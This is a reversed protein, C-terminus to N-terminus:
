GKPRAPWNVAGFVAAALGALYIPAHQLEATGIPARPANSTCLLCYAAASTGAAIFLICVPLTLSRPLTQWRLVMGLFVLGLALALGGTAGFLLVLPLSEWNDETTESIFLLTTILFAGLVWGAIFRERLNRWQDIKALKETRLSM